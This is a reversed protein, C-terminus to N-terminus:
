ERWAATTSRAERRDREQVDPVLRARQRRLQREGPLGELERGRSASARSVHDVHLWRVAGHQRHRPRRRHRDPRDHRDDSLPSESEDSREGLLLLADFMTYADALAYYFTLDARTYFSMATPARRLCGSIGSAATGRPTGRAGTTHSTPSASFTRTSRCFTSVCREASPLGTARRSDRARSPDASDAFAASRASTTDFSRNEQVFIVVHEVDAITGTNASAYRPALMSILVAAALLPGSRMRM